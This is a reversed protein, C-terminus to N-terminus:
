VSTSVLAEVDDETAPRGTWASVSAVVSAMARSRDPAPQDLAHLWRRRVAWVLERRRLASEVSAMQDDTAELRFVDRIARPIVQRYDHGGERFTGPSMTLANQLDVFTTFFTTVPLWWTRRPAGPPREDEPGLWAPRRWLLPVTMKPVPDNGNDLLLFRVRSREEPALALWDGISRPLYAAGPGVDPPTGLPRGGWLQERWSNGGPTGLWIGADLGVGEPAGVGQGAFPELNVDAGLSEGMAYFRPRQSAPMDLLRDVIGNLLIRTQVGGSGVRTLSLASPLVSYQVAASACDGRALYEVAETAVYNVYGSGTPTFLVFVKRELARTRDIEALLLRARDEVTRASELPAYLRIPQAAPEGMVEEIAAATLTTTLWRRSELSQDPWPIHSGPGGSVEPLHPPAAHAPEVGRAATALVANLRTLSWWGAGALVAWVLARGLARRDDPEGGLAAAAGGAALDSLRSETWALALLAGTVGLGAATAAPVVVHRAVDPPLEATPGAARPAPRVGPLDGLTQAGSIGRRSLLYGTTWVAMTTAWMAARGATRGRALELGEAALGACATAATASTLLRALPRLPPEGDRYRLARASALGIVAALADVSAGSLLRGVASSRAGPLRNALSRLVSHSASGWGFASAAAVGSIIAQGHNGRPLLNPQFSLGSALAGLIAGTRSSVDLTVFRIRPLSVM